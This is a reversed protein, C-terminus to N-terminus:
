QGDDSGPASIDGDLVDEAGVNSIADGSAGELFVLPASLTFRPSRYDEFEVERTLVASQNASDFVVYTARRDGAYYGPCLGGLLIEGTLDGDEEDHASLGEMIDEETIIM